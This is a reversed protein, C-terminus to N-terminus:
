LVGIRKLTNPRANACALCCRPLFSDVEGRQPGPLRAELAAIRSGEREDGANVHFPEPMTDSVREPMTDCVREWMTDSVRESMTGFVRRM